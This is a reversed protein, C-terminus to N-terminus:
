LLWLCGNKGVAWKGSLVEQSQLWMEALTEAGVEGWVGHTGAWGMCHTGWVRCQAAGAGTTRTIGMCTHAWHQCGWSSGQVVVPSPDAAATTAGPGHRPGM